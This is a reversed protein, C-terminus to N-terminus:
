KDSAEKGNTESQVEHKNITNNDHSELKTDTKENKPSSKRRFFNLGKKNEKKGHDEEKKDHNDGHSHKSSSRFKPFFHLHNNSNEKKNPQQPPAAAPPSAIHYSISNNNNVPTNTNSVIVSTANTLPHASGVTPPPQESPLSPQTDMTSETTDTPPETPSIRMNETECSITEVDKMPDCKEARVSGQESAKIASQNTSGYQIVTDRQQQHHYNEQSLPSQASQEYHPASDPGFETYLVLNEQTQNEARQRDRLAQVANWVDKLEGSLDRDKLIEPKRYCM